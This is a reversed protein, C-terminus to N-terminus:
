GNEVAKPDEKVVVVGTRPSVVIAEKPVSGLNLWKTLWANFGPVAMLRSVGGIVLATGAVIANLWVFVVGPIVVDTQESLYAVLAAAAGNMVPVLVVLAGVISRLVRQGKYWIQTANKLAEEEPTSHTNMTRRESIPYSESAIRGRAREVHVAYTKAILTAAFLVSGILRVPEPVKEGFIIAYAILGVFFVTTLSYSFIVWGLPDRFWARPKGLAFYLALVASLVFCALLAYDSPTLDHM